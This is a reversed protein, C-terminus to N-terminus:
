QQVTSADKYKLISFVILSLTILTTSTNELYIDGRSIIRLVTSIIVTIPYSFLVLLAYLNKKNKM